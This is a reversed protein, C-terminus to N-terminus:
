FWQQNFISSKHRLSFIGTPSSLAFAVQKAEDPDPQIADHEVLQALQAAVPEVEDPNCSRSYEVQDLITDTVCGLSEDKHVRECNIM